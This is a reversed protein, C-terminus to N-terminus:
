QLEIIGFDGDDRLYIVKFKHDEESRYALFHDGSLEMKMIAEQTSLTKLVQKEKKVIEHLRYREAERVENEIDIEHNIRDLESKRTGYINVTVEEASVSKVQHAHIRDKYKRVQSQLRDMAKDISAYMNETVAHVKVKFHDFRLLIDVRHDLKQVELTIIVDILNPSFREIKELKTFIYDRIPETIQVHRGQIEIAYGTIVTKHTMIAEKLLARLTHLGRSNALGLKASNM